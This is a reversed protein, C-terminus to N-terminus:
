GCRKHHHLALILTTQAEKKPKRTMRKALAVMGQRWGSVQISSLASQAM